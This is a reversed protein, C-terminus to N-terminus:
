EGGRKNKDYDGLIEMIIGSFPVALIVGWVGALKVGILMAIIIVVSPVGVAKNMIKPYLIHSEFQGLVFYVLAVIGVLPAGGHLSALLLSPILAFTLGVMPVLEGIFALIALLGSYPIALVKMSIYVLLSVVFSLAFQGQLWKAIKHQSRSWIDAVYNENSLPTFIKLFKLVGNEELAFYIALVFTIVVKFLSNLVVSTTAFFGVDGFFTNKVVTLIQGRSIDRSLEQVYLSMDKMGMDKGFIRVSDLLNPISKVFDAIDDALPPVFIFAIAVLSLFLLTFLSIVSVARPIKYKKLLIVYPEIAAALTIAVLVTVALERMYFLGAFFIGVLFVKIISSTQISIRTYDKM